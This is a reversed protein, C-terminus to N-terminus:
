QKQALLIIINPQKLFGFLKKIYYYRHFAYLFKKDLIRFGGIKLEAEILAPTYVRVHANPNSSMHELGENLPVSVILHGSPKLVKYIQSLAKFTLRPLIHEMVELVLVCDFYNKPFKLNTIQGVQFHKDPHKGSSTKVSKPSIDIGYWDYSDAVIDELLAGGFGVDLVKNVGKPIMGAVTNIRDWMMPNQAKIDKLEFNLKDWLKPTNQDSIEPLKPSYTKKLESYDKAEALQSRLEELRFPDTIQIIGISM